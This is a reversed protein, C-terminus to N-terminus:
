ASWKALLDRSFVLFRGEVIASRAREMLRQLFTLNHISALIPGTMEDAMFM